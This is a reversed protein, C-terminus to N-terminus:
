PSLPVRAPTVHNIAQLLRDLIVAIEVLTVTGRDEYQYEPTLIVPEAEPWNRERLFREIQEALARNQAAAAPEAYGIRLLVNVFTTYDTAIESTGQGERPWRRGPDPWPDPYGPEKIADPHGIFEETFDQMFQTRLKPKSDM